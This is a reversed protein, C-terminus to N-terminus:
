QMELYKLRDMEEETLEKKDEKKKQVFPKNSRAMSPKGVRVFNKREKEEQRKKQKEENLLREKEQVKARNEKRQEKKIKTQEELVTKEDINESVQFEQLYKDINKEIENLLQLVSANGMKADGKEAVCLRYLDNVAHEVKGLTM